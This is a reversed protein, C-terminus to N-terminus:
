KNVQRNAFAIGKERILGVVDSVVEAAGIVFNVRYTGPLFEMVIRCGAASAVSMAGAVDWINNSFGFAAQIKGSAACCINLAASGTRLVGRSADNIEGFIKYELGRRLPDIAKGSFSAAVLSDKLVAHASKLPRDNLFAAKDGITYYLDESAPFAVAGAVFRGGSILGVSVGYWPMGHVYNVTGDIPDVYWTKGAALHKGPVPATEEGVVPYGSPALVNKIAREVAEDTPTVIDRLSEKLRVEANPQFRELVRAGASVAKLALASDNQKLIQM